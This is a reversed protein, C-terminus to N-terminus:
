AYLEGDDRSASDAADDRLAAQTRAFPQHDASSPQRQQGPQGQQGNASSSGYGGNGQNNLDVHSEAVRLGQARVEALLRPQADAIIARAQDTEATMRIATGSASNAIEVTLAGLHEPNLQFKLHGQRTAAQSIDQALRDLWQNDRALDLQRTVVQDAQGPGAAPGTAASTDLPAFPQAPPAVAQPVAVTPAAPAAALATADPAEAAPRGDQRFLPADAQVPTQAPPMAPAAGPQVPAPQAKGEVPQRDTAAHAAPLKGDEPPVVVAAAEVAVAMAAAQAPEAPQVPAAITGPPVAPQAAPTDIATPAATQAAAAPVPALAAAVPVAPTRAVAEGDRPQGTPTFAAKLSALLAAIDSPISPTAAPTGKADPDTAVPAAAEPMPSRAQAQAQEGTSALPAPPMTEGPAAPSALSPAAPLPVDVIVAATRTTPPAAVAATTEAAPAPPPVAAAAPAAVPQSVTVQAAAAVMAEIEALLNAPQDAPVEKTEDAPATPLMDDAVGSEAEGESGTEATTGDQAGKDGSKAQAVLQAFMAPAEPSTPGNAQPGAGVNLAIASTSLAAVAM